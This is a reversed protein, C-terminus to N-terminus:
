RRVPQKTWYVVLLCLPGLKEAEKIFITLDQVQVAKSLDNSQFIAMLSALNVSLLPVLVGASCQVPHCNFRFGILRILLAFITLRHIFCETIWEAGIFFPAGVVSPLRIALHELPRGPLVPSFFHRSDSPFLQGTTPRWCTM